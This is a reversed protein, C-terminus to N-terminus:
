VFFVFFCIYLCFCVFIFCFCFFCVFFYFCFFCFLSFRKLYWLMTLDVFIRLNPNCFEIRRLCKKNFPCNHSNTRTLYSFLYMEKSSKVIDLTSIKKKDIENHSLVSLNKINIHSILTIVIKIQWVKHDTPGTCCFENM